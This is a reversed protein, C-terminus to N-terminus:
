EPPTLRTNALVPLVARAEAVTTRDLDAVLLQPGANAEAVVRGLPDVVMSHGVGLPPGSEVRDAGQSAPDAQGCAVVWCTTDLARARVLHRWQDLKGPGDGWSAVVLQVEAGRAAYWKYLEPFRLDYCVSVGTPLGALELVEAPETGPAITDSETHGFADYLHIKHYRTTGHPGTVLLTNHVRGGPRDGDPLTVTGVAITTDLEAALDIVARSWPGDVPEAARRSSGAYSMMTAEPFVVLDAGDAVARETWERVLRLNTAPDTTSTLQALGVRM